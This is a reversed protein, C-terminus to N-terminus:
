EITVWVYDGMAHNVSFSLVVKGDKLFSNGFFQYTETESLETIDKDFGKLNYVLNELDPTESYYNYELIDNITLGDTEIKYGSESFLVSAIEEVDAYDELYLQDGTTMDITYSTCYANPHASGDFYEWGTVVISCRDATQETVEFTMEASDQNGLLDSESEAREKLLANWSDQAEENEWGSIVPYTITVNENKVLDVSEISYDSNQTSSENQSSESDDKSATDEKSADEKSTDEKATEEQEDSANEEDSITDSETEADEIEAKVEDSFDPAEYNDALNAADDASADSTENGCAAVGLVLAGALALVVLKRKM